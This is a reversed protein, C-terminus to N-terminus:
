DTSSPKIVSYETLNSDQVPDQDLGLESDPDVKKPGEFAENLELDIWAVDEPEELQLDAQVQHSARRGHDLKDAEELVEKEDESLNAVWDGPNWEWVPFEATRQNTLKLITWQDQTASDLLSLGCRSTAKIILSIQPGLHLGSIFLRSRPSALWSGLSKLFKTALYPSYNVVILDFHGVWESVLQRPFPPPGTLKVSLSKDFQNLLAMNEALRAKAPQSCVATVSGAGMSLATAALLGPDEDFILVKGGKTEPAGLPPTFYDTVAESSLELLIKRRPSPRFLQDVKLVKQSDQNQESPELSIKLPGL